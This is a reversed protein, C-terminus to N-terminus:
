VGLLLRNVVAQLIWLLFFTVLPSLDIFQSRPLLKRVAGLVPETLEYVLRSIPHVDPHPFVWSAVIRAIILLYFVLVFLNVFNALVYALM